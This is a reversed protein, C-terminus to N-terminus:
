GRFFDLVEGCMDAGLDDTELELVQCILLFVLKSKQDSFAAYHEETVLIETRLLLKLEAVVITFDLDVRLHRVHRAELARTHDPRIQHGRLDLRTEALRDACLSPVSIQLHQINAVLTYPVSLDCAYVLALWCADSVEVVVGDGFDAAVREPCGAVGSVLLERGFEALDDVAAVGDEARRVSVEVAIIGISSGLVDLAAM